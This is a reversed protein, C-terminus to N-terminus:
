RSMELKIPWGAKNSNSSGSSIAQYKAFHPKLMVKDIKKLLTTLPMLKRPQDPQFEL